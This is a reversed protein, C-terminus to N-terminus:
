VTVWRWRLLLRLTYQTVRTLTINFAADARQPLFGPIAVALVVVAKCLAKAMDYLAKRRHPQANRYFRILDREETSLGVVHGNVMQGEGSALWAPDVRWLKAINVITQSDPVTGHFWQFVTQRSAGLARAVDSQKWKVGAHEASRQLRDRFDM